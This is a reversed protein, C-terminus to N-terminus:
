FFTLSTANISPQIYHGCFETMFQPSISREFGRSMSHCFSSPYIFALANTLPLIHHLVESALTNEFHIHFTFTLAPTPAYAVICSTMCRLVESSNGEFSAITSIPLQSPQLCLSLLWPPIYIAKVRTCYNLWGNWCSYVVIVPFTSGPFEIKCNAPLLLTHQTTVDRPCGVM